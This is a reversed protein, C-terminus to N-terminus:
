QIWMYKLKKLKNMKFLIKTVTDTAKAKLEMNKKFM